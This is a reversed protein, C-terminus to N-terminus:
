PVLVFEHEGVSGLNSRPYPSKCRNPGIVSAGEVRHIDKLCNRFQISIYRTNKTINVVCLILLM